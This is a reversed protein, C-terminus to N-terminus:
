KSKSSSLLKLCTVISKTLHPMDPLFICWQGTVPDKMLCRVDYDIGSYKDLIQQPLDNCFTSTPLTDRYSVWNCGAADSTAMRMELGFMPLTDRLAIMMSTIVAASVKKVNISAM